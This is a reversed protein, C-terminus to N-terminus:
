DVDSYINLISTKNVYKRLRYMRIHHGIYYWYYYKIKSIM